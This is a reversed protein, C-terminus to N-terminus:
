NQLNFWWGEGPASSLRRSQGKREKSIWLHHNPPHTHRSFDVVLQKNKGMAIHLTTERPSTCLGRYWNETRQQITVWCWGRCCRWWILLWRCQHTTESTKQILHRNYQCWAPDKWLRPAKGLKLNLGKKGQDERRFGISYYIWIM